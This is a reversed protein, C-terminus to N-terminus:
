VFHGADYVKITEYMAPHIPLIDMAHLFYACGPTHCEGGKGELCAECVTIEIRKLKM